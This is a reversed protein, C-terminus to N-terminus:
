ENMLASADRRFAQGTDLMIADADLDVLTGLEALATRDLQALDGTVVLAPRMAAVRDFYEIVQAYGLSPLAM